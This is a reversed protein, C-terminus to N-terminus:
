FSACEFTCFHLPGLAKTCTLEM